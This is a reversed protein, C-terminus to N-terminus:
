TKLHAVPIAGTALQSSCLIAILFDPSWSILILFHIYHMKARINGSARFLFSVLPVLHIQYITFHMWIFWTFNHSDEYITKLKTSNRLMHPSPLNKFICIKNNKPTKLLKPTYFLDQGHLPFSWFWTYYTYWIGCLTRMYPWYNAM